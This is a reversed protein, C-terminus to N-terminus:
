WLSQHRLLICLLVSARSRNCLSETSINYQGRTSQSLFQSQTLTTKAETGRLVQSAVNQKTEKKSAIKSKSTLNSEVSGELTDLLLNAAPSRPLLPPYTHPQYQAAAFLSTVTIDTPFSCRNDGMGEEEEEGRSALRRERRPPSTNSTTRKPRPAYIVEAAAVRSSPRKCSELKCPLHMTFTQKAKYTGLGPAASVRSVLPDLGGPQKFQNLQVLRKRNCIEEFQSQAALSTNAEFEEDFQGRLWYDALDVPLYPIYAGTHMDAALMDLEDVGEEENGGRWAERRDRKPAIQRRYPSTSLDHLLRKHFTSEQPQSEPRESDIDQLKNAVWSEYDSRFLHESKLVDEM